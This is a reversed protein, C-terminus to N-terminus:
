GYPNPETKCMWAAAAVVLAVVILRAVVAKSGKGPVISVMPAVLLMAGVHRPTSAYLVGNALLGAFLIQQPAALARGIPPADPRLSAMGALMLGFLGATSGMSAVLLATTGSGSWGIAFSAALTAMGTTLAIEAGRGTAEAAMRGVFCATALISLAGAWLLVKGAWFRDHLSETPLTYLLGAIVAFAVVATISSTGGKSAIIGIPFAAVGALLVWDLFQEPPVDLTQGGAYLTSLVAAVPALAALVAAVTSRGRDGRLVVALAVLACGVIAGIIVPQPDM